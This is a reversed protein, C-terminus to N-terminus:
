CCQIHEGHKSHLHREIVIAFWITFIINHKNRRLGECVVEHADVADVTSYVGVADDM